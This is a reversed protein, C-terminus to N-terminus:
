AEDSGAPREPRTLEELLSLRNTLGHQRTCFDSKAPETQRFTPTWPDPTSCPSQIEPRPFWLSRTCCAAPEPRAAATINLRPLLDRCWTVSEIRLSGHFAQWMM